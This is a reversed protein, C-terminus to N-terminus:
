EDVGDHAVDSSALREARILLAASPVVQRSLYTSLRSASTGLHAAFDRRTLGSRAVAASFRHAVAARDRREAEERIHAISREFLVATGYPRAFTLVYEIKRAVPGWPARRVADIMRRWDPLTGRELAAQIAETPWTEVPDAVDATVNRFALRSGSM